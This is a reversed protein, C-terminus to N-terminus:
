DRGKAIQKRTKRNAVKLTIFAIAVLCIAILAHTFFHVAENSTEAHAIISSHALTASSGMLSSLIGSIIFLKKPM